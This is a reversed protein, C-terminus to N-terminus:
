AIVSRDYDTPSDGSTNGYDVIRQAITTLDKSDKVPELYQCLATRGGYQVAGAVIDAYYSLWDDTRLNPVGTAECNKSIFNDADGTERKQAEATVFSM